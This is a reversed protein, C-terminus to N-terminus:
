KLSQKKQKKKLSTPRYEYYFNDQNRSYITNNLRDTLSTLPIEGRISKLEEDIIDEIKDVQSINFYQNEFFLVNKDIEQSYIKRIANFFSKTIEDEKRNSTLTPLLLNSFNELFENNGNLEIKKGKRSYFSTRIGKQWHADLRYTGNVKGDKRHTDIKIFANELNNDSDFRAEFFTTPKNSLEKRRKNINPNIIVTKEGTEYNKIIKVENYQKLLEKDNNKIYILENEKSLIVELNNNTLNHKTFYSPKNDKRSLKNYEINGDHDFAFRRRAQNSNMNVWDIEGFLCEHYEGDINLKLRALPVRNNSNDNYVNELHVTNNLKEEEAQLIDMPVFRLTKSYAKQYEEQWSANWNKEVYEKAHKMEKLVKEVITIQTTRDLNKM